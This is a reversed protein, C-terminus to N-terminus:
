LEQVKAFTSRNQHALAERHRTLLTLNFTDNESMQMCFSWKFYILICKCVGYIKHINKTIDKLSLKISGFDM